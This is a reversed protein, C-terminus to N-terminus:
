SLEQKSLGMWTHSRAKARESVTETHVQPRAGRSSGSWTFTVGPSYYPDLLQVNNGCDVWKDELTYTQAKGWLFSTLIIILTTLATRM